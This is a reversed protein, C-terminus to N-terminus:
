AAFAALKAAERVKQEDAKTKEARAADSIAREWRDQDDEAM